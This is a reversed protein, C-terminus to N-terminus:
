KVKKILYTMLIQCRYVDSLRDGCQLLLVIELATIIFFFNLIKFHITPMKIFSCKSSFVEYIATFKKIIKIELYVYPSFLFFDLNNKM